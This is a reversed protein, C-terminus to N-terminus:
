FISRVSAGGPILRLEARRRAAAAKAPSPRDLIWLTVGAGASVAAGIWLGLAVRDLTHVADADSRDCDASEPCAEDADANKSGSIAFVVVGGLGLAVAGAGAIWSSVPPPRLGAREPGLDAAGSSMSLGDSRRAPAGVRLEIALTLNDREKLELKRDFPTRGPATASVAHAGPDLRQESAVKDHPVEVGDISVTAETVGPPLQLVLRPVRERLMAARPRALDRVDAIGQETAIAEAREFDRLAEALQGLHEECNALHVLVGPTSKSLAVEKFITLAEQYREAVEAKQGQEFRERLRKVEAVTPEAAVAHRPAFPAAGSMAVILALASRSNM